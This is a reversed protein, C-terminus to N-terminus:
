NREGEYMLLDLNQVLLRRSDSFCIYLLLGVVPAVRGVAGATGVDRNVM